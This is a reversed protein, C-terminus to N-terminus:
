GAPRGACGIPTVSTMSAVAVTSAIAAASAAVVVLRRQGDDIAAALKEDRAKGLVPGRALADAAAVDIKECALGHGRPTKLVCALRFSFELRHLEREGVPGLVLARHRATKGADAM